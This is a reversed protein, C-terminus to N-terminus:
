IDGQKMNSMLFDIAKDNQKYVWSSFDKIQKFDSWWQCLYPHAERYWLTTGLIVKGMYEFMDNDLFKYNDIKASLSRQHDIVTERDSGYYEHNGNIGIVLKYKDALQKIGNELYPVTGIDGGLLLLDIGTPDLSAIFSNGGDKHFEFHTDSILQLKM